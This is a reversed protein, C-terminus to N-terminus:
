GGGLRQPLRDIWCWSSVDPPNARKRWWPTNEDQDPFPVSIINPASARWTVGEGLSLEVVFAAIIFAGGVALAAFLPLAKRGFSEEDGDSVVTPKNHDDANM